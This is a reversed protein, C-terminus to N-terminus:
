NESSMTKVWPSEFITTKAVTSHKLFNEHIMLVHPLYTSYDISTHVDLARWVMDRCQMTASFFAASDLDIQSRHYSSFFAVKLFIGCFWIQPCKQLKWWSQPRISLFASMLPSRFYEWTFSCVWTSGLDRPNTMFCWLFRYVSARNSFFNELRSASFFFM